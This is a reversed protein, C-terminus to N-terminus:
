ALQERLWQRALQWDRQVSRESIGLAEATEPETLGAFYRCEVVRPQRPERAGLKQPLNDLAMM